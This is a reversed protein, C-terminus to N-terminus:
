ECEEDFNDALTIVWIRFFLCFFLHTQIWLAICNIMIFIFVFIFFLDCLYSVILGLDLFSCLYLVYLCYRVIIISIHILCCRLLMQLEIWVFTLCCQTAFFHQIKFFLYLVKAFTVLPQLFLDFIQWTDSISTKRFTTVLKLPSSLIKGFM